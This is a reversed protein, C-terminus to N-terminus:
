REGGLTRPDDDNFLRGQAENFLTIDASWDGHRSVVARFEELDHGILKYTIVGDDAEDVFVHCFEHDLLAVRQADNCANWAPTSIILLLDHGTLHQEVPNAKRIKAWVDKGKSRAMDKDMLYAISAGALGRHWKPIVTTEALKKAEEAPIYTKM